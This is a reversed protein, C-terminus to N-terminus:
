SLVYDKEQTIKLLNECAQFLSNPITSTWASARRGKQFANLNQSLAIAVKRGKGDTTVSSSGIPSLTTKLKIKLFSVTMRTAKHYYIILQLFFNVPFSICVYEIIFQV